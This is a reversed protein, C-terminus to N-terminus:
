AACIADVVSSARVCACECMCMCKYCVERKPFVGTLIESGMVEWGEREETGRVDRRGKASYARMEFVRVCWFM